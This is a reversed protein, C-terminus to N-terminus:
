KGGGETNPAPKKCMDRIGGKYLAVETITDKVKFARGLKNHYSLYGCGSKQVLVDVEAEPIPRRMEYGESHLEAVACGLKRGLEDDPWYWNWTEGEWENHEAMHLYEM